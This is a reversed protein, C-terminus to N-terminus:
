PIMLAANKEPLDLLYGTKKDKGAELTWRCEKTQPKRGGDYLWYYQM